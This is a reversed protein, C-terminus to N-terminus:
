LREEKGARAFPKYQRSGRDFFNSFFELFTLRLAHISPSFLIIAFNLIHLILGIAIGGINPLTKFMLDNAADALLAGVLGVAMIRIYSAAHSVAELTEIAGMIGGGFLASIFGVALVVYAVYRFIAAGGAGLLAEVQPMMMGVVLLLAAFIILLIGGKEFIHKKHGAKKSNIIGIVLGVAVEFVGVGLALFLLTTMMTSETRLFPISFWSTIEIPKINHLFPIYEYGLNGFFEFYFAGFIMTMIGAPLLVGTINQVGLSKPMKMRLALCFIVMLLGYGADGVIMGFIFPFSIALIATPDIQGYLPMGWLGLAARFSNLMGKRKQVEVPVEPYIAPTIPEEEVLVNQDVATVTSILGSLDSKPVYGEIVFTFATEGFLKTVEYEELRDHIADKLGVFEGFSSEGLEKLSGNIKQIQAPIKESQEQLRKIAEPLPINELESPLKIQSTHEDKLYAWVRKAYEKEFVVVLPIINKDPAADIVRTRSSSIEQLAPEFMKILSEHKKEILLVLAGLGNTDGVTFRDIIPAVQAVIPKHKDLEALKEELAERQSVLDKVVPELRGLTKEAQELLRPTQVTFLPNDQGAPLHRVEDGYLGQYVVECRQMDETLQAVEEEREAPQEMRKIPLEGAEIAPTLDDFQLKGFSYLATLTQSFVAKLGIIRVKSMETIM